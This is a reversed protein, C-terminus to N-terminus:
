GGLVHSRRHLTPRLHPVRRRRHRCRREFWGALGHTDREERSRRLSGGAETMTQASTIEAGQLTDAKVLVKHNPSPGQILAFTALPLIVSLNFIFSSCRSRVPRLHMEM